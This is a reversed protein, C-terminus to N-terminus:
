DGIEFVVSVSASVTMDGANYTEPAAADASLTAVERAAFMPMPPRPHAGADVQIASGLTLGLSNALREANARADEAAKALADRYADRRKSSTLQPPSVQNVGEAVAREVVAGLKELDHIEIRMQREAIYGRLEQEEKERNWRYDPRVSAAMTDIRNDPIDLEKALALVRATVDAAEAQAAAVSTDRAVISLILTARDPPTEVSGEGSVSITRPLEDAALVWGTAFFLFLPVLRSM